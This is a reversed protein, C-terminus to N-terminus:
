SFTFLSEVTIGVDDVKSHTGTDHLEMVTDSLGLHRGRPEDVVPIHHHSTGLCQWGPLGLPIGPHSFFVTM